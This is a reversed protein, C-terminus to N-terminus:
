RSMSISVQNTNDVILKEPSKNDTDEKMIFNVSALFINQCLWRYSEVSMTAESLKFSRADWM